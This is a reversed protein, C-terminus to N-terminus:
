RKKGVLSVCPNQPLFAIRSRANPPCNKEQPLFLSKSIPANTPTWVLATHAWPSKPSMSGFAASTYRACHITFHATTQANEIFRSVNNKVKGFGDAQSGSWEESRTPNPRTEETNRSQTPRHKHAAKHHRLPKHPHTPNDRQRRHSPANHHQPTPPPPTPLHLCDCPPLLPPTPPQPRKPTGGLSLGGASCCFSYRCSCGLSAAIQDPTYTRTSPAPRIPLRLYPEPCPCPSIRCRPPQYPLPTILATPPPVHALPLLM